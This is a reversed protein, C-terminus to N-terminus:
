ALTRHCKTAPRDRRELEHCLAWFAPATGGSLGGSVYYKGCNRGSHVSSKPNRDYRFPRSKIGSARSNVLLLNEGRAPRPLFEEETITQTCTLSANFFFFLYDM